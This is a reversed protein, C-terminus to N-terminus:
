IGLCLNEMDLFRNPFRGIVGEMRGTIDDIKLRCNQLIFCAATKRKMRVKVSWVLMAAKAHHARV